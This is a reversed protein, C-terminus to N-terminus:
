DVTVFNHKAITKLGASVRSGLSNDDWYDDDMELLPPAPSRVTQSTSPEDKTLFPDKKRVGGLSAFDEAANRLLKAAEEEPLRGAQDLFFSIEPLTSVQTWHCVGMEPCTLLSLRSILGQRWAQLLVDINFPGKREDEVLVEFRRGQLSLAMKSLVGWEKNMDDTM